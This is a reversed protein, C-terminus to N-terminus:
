HTQPTPQPLDFERIFISQWATKQTESKTEWTRSQILRNRKLGGQTM